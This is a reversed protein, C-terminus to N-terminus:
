RTLLHHRRRNHAQDHQLRQRKPNWISTWHSMSLRIMTKMAAEKTWLSVLHMQQPRVTTLSCSM